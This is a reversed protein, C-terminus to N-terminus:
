GLQAQLAAARRRVEETWGGDFTASADREALRAVAERLEPALAEPNADFWSLYAARTAPDRGGEWGAALEDGVDAGDIRLREIVGALAGAGHPPARFRAFTEGPDAGESVALQFGAAFAVPGAKRRGLDA